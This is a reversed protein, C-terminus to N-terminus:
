AYGRRLHELQFYMSICGLFRLCGTARSSHFRTCAFSTHLVCSIAGSLDSAGSDQQHAWCGLPPCSNKQYTLYRSKRADQVDTQGLMGSKAGAKTHLRGLLCTAIDHRNAYVSHDQTWHIQVLDVKTGHNACCYLGKYVDFKCADPISTVGLRIRM